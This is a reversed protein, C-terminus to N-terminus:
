RSRACCRCGSKDTRCCAAHLLERKGLSGTWMWHSEFQQYTQFFTSVTSLVNVLIQFFESWHKVANCGGRGVTVTWFNNWEKQPKSALVVLLLFNVLLVTTTLVIAGCANAQWGPFRKHFWQVLAINDQHPKLTSCTHTLPVKCSVWKSKWKKAQEKVPTSTKSWWPSAYVALPLCLRKWKSRDRQWGKETSSSSISKSTSQHTHHHGEPALGQLTSLTSARSGLTPDALPLVENTNTNTDDSQAIDASEERQDTTVFSTVQETSLVPSM